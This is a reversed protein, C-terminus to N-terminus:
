MVAANNVKLPDQASDIGGQQVGTAFKSRARIRPGFFFLVFPIPSLMAGVLAILTSGWRFGLHQYLKPTFLSFATAM